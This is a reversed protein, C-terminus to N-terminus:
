HAEHKMLDTNFDGVIICSKIKNDNIIGITTGELIEIFKDVHGEPHRCIVCVLFTENTSSSIEYCLNGVKM